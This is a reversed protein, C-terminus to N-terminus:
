DSIHHKFKGVNHSYHIIRRNLFLSVYKYSFEFERSDEKYILFKIINKM